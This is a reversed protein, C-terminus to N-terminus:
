QIHACNYESFIAGSANTQRDYIIFSFLSFFQHRFLSRPSSELFFVIYILFLHSIARQEPWFAINEFLGSGAYGRDLVSLSLLILIIIIFTYHFSAFCVVSLLIIIIITIVIRM